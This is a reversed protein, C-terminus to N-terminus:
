EARLAEVPNVTATRRSPIYSALVAAGCLALCAAAYTFPDMPSVQFLLSRLLRTAALAIVLGCGVGALALFLGQRVFMGTITSRQAGLAIRIGIERRRQSASYAIVGYLGILGLLLAIAAALGLMILTFQTRALSSNYYHSEPFASTVPINADVSWVAQRIDKMLSESGARPSRVAYVVFRQLHVMGGEFHETRIPWWVIPPADKSTGDDRVDGVVGIVERWDDKSSVRIHKGLAAAPSGWFERAVRASVIGVPVKKYIEDWTYDRGALLPVGITSFFGPAVFKFRHLSPMAGEAVPHDQAYLPDGWQGGDMPVSLGYSASTVGPLVAVRSLIDQQMHLANDDNPIEAEPIGLRFTQIPAASDFGADVHTLAAFTRIMLGSCILLVFALSVQIVVLINRTRHRERGQSLSRGGERLGANVRMGTYRLAPISGFLLSCLLAVAVTFVLVILDIGIDHLRPLGSPALAVLLHLAGWALILGLVSGAVGILLSELLFDGAIRWRGAGLASRIALEQQRGEARVLLLNAVNACAILLVVGISGMLIWLLPAVDGVVDRTLPRIKPALRAKYFLDISFGPPAPFSAWVLPILRAIDANAAALTVGPRLRAIGEYSFQGLVTKGRDLQIPLIIAPQKWDLFHFTRPMVGVITRSKGDVNISRGIISRDANFRRQWYGYDLIINSPGNPATDAKDFWRGLMPAIGLIPFVGDTVDLADVQEPNGSGTVAVSDGQYLGIDEFVRNQDRYIFYNSPAMNAEDLNLGPASHWVGVLTEPHPYPLPKLLVGEVVSFVAINAGIGVALTIVTVLTFLPARGLRRIVQRLQSSLNM